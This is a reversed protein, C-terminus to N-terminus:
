RTTEDLEGKEVKPMHAEGLSVGNGVALKMWAYWERRAHDREQIANDRAVGLEHIQVGRDILEENLKAIRTELAPLKARLETILQAADVCAGNPAPNSIHPDVVAALDRAAQLWGDLLAQAQARLLEASRLKAHMAFLEDDLAEALRAIQEANKSEAM